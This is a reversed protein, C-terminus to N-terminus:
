WGSDSPWWRASRGGPASCRGPPPTARRTFCRRGCGPCSRSCGGSWSTASASGPSSRATTISRCCVPSRRSVANMDVDARGGITARVTGDRDQCVAPRVRPRGGWGALVAGRPTITFTLSAM